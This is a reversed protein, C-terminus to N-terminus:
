RQGKVNDRKLRERRELAEASLRQADTLFPQDPESHYVALTWPDSRLRDVFAEFMAYAGASLRQGAPCNCAAVYTDCVAPGGKRSSRHHAVEVRGTYSCRRCGKPQEPEGQHPMGKILGRINAVNPARNQENIWRKVATVVIRDPYNKLGAAWTQRNEEAWTPFKSYNSAIRDLMQAITQETAM